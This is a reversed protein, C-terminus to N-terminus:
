KICTWYCWLVMDSLAFVSFVLRVEGAFHLRLRANRCQKLLAPRERRCLVLAIATLWNSLRSLSCQHRHVRRACLPVGIFRAANAARHLAKTRAFDM